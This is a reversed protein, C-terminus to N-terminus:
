EESELTLGNNESDSSVLHLILGFIFLSMVTNGVSQNKSTGAGPTM